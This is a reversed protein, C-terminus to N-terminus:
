VFSVQVAASSCSFFTNAAGVGNVSDEPVNLVTAPIIAIDVGSPAYIGGSFQVSLVEGLSLVSAVAKHVVFSTLQTTGFPLVQIATAVATQIVLVDPQPVGSPMRISIDVNVFCPVAAKVLLDTGAPRTSDASIGACLEIDPMYAQTFQYVVVQGLTTIATNGTDTFTGTISHNRSFYLDKSSAVRPTFPAAVVLTPTLTPAPMVTVVGSSSVRRLNLLRYMGACTARDLTFTLSKTGVNTVTANVTIDRYSVTPVTKIYADVFGTQAVGLINLLGRTVLPSAAGLFSGTAEAKVSTLLRQSHEQGSIVAATIGTQVRALLEANTEAARGPVFDDSATCTVIGWPAETLTLSTGLGIASTSGAVAAEVKITFTYGQTYQTSAPFLSSALSRESPSLPRQVMIRATDSATVGVTGPPYATQTFPVTFLMGSTTRFEAGAPLTTRGSSVM